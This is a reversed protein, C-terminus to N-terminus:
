VDWDGEPIAWEQGVIRVRESELWSGIRGTADADANAYEIAEALPAHAISPIPYGALNAEKAKEWLDYAPKHSHSLIRKLDRCRSNPKYLLKVKTKLQKTVILPKEEEELWESTLWEVMKRRSPPMVVDEWSRMRLGLQRYALAKLGQPLNGMHYAEQMTDRIARGKTPLGMSELPELDAISHHLLLGYGDILRALRRILTPKDAMVMCGHGPRLSFQLSWPRDGDSETDIPIYEYSIGAEFQRDIDFITDALSYDTPINSTPPQWTDNMWMGLRQFDALLHIMMSTQHLGSAPHYCPWLWGSWDGFYQPASGDYRVPLGHMKDLEIDPLLSCATTGLLVIVSPQCEAIETPLHHSACGHIQADTPKTNSAGLRCRVCNTIRVQRRDLYALPM